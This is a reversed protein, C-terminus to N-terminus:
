WRYDDEEVCVINLTQFSDYKNEPRVEDFLRSLCAFTHDVQM